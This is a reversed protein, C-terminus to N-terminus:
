DLQDSIVSGRGRVQTIHTVRRGKGEKGRVEGKRERRQSDNDELEWGWFFFYDNQQMWGGM